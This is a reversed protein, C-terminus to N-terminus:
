SHSGAMFSRPRKVAVASGGGRRGRVAGRSRWCATCGRSRTGFSRRAWRVRERHVFIVGLVLTEVSLTGHVLTRVLRGWVSLTTRSESAVIEECIELLLHAVPRIRGHGRRWARWLRLSSLKSRGVREWFTPSSLLECRQAGGGAQLTTHDGIGEVLPLISLEFLAFYLAGLTGLSSREQARMLLIAEPRAVGGLHDLLGHALSRQAGPDRPRRGSSRTLELSTRSESLSQQSWLLRRWSVISSAQGILCTTRRYRVHPRVGDHEKWSLGSL